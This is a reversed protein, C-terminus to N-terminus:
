RVLFPAYRQAPNYIIAPTVDPTTYLVTLLMDSVGLVQNGGTKTFGIAGYESKTPVVSASESIMWYDALATGPNFDVSQTVGDVSNGLEGFHDTTSGGSRKMRWWGEVAIVTDSGIDTDTNPGGTGAGGGADNTLVYGSQTGSGTYLGDNAQNPPIEQMNAWTGTDLDTGSDPTASALTSRYAAIGLGVPCDAVGTLGTAIFGPGFNSVKGSETTHLYRFVETGTVNLFDKGTVTGVSVDDIFLEADGSNVRDIYLRILYDTSPQIANAASLIVIAPVSDLLALQKNSAYYQLTFSTTSNDHWYAIPGNIARDSNFWFAICTKSGADARVNFANFDAIATSTADLLFSRVGSGVQTAVNSVQANASQSWELGGNEAHILRNFTLAM